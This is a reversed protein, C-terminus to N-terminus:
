EGVHLFLPEAVCLDSHLDIPRRTYGHTHMRRVTLPGPDRHKLAPSSISLAFLASSPLSSSAVSPPLPSSSLRDFTGDCALPPFTMKEVDEGPPPTSNGVRIHEYMKEKVSSWSEGKSNVGM